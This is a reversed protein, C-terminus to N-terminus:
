LKPNSMHDYRQANIILGQAVHKAWIKKWM